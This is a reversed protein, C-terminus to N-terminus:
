SLGRHKRFWKKIQSRALSTKVFELWKRSPKKSKEVIIEVIDGNKLIDSLSVMKGNVKVGACKQGIETHVAYAFDVPTAGEPLDIVDGQPTFVFIRNKFFDFKLGKLFEEVDSVEKQWDRLQRVWAFKKRQTKLDIKEKHAWHACIGYEAEEHMEPTRIQFETIKGNICFVTTHLSRYGTPKPTAIYDKIRGLLPKWYKHIVGLTKYCTEVDKVIMRLAVLDYIKEFNMEYRLLKQYLSWYHKARQHIDIPYIKEKELLKILTPRVKKLYKKGKEYREKVNEMLWKFEEPYLYPFALDELQGKMEGIGLRHAIPAFIELTELAIRKQKEKPLYDLTKMNDWRDALKILIVRLDQAMAFFMKRLNEARLDIPTKVRREIPEVELGKKPYRLKGLKSVGGVLFAIEKGFNKELEKLSVPTDDPVDHLLGAAVAKPDLKLETLIQAVHLPHSIYDKGSLRKQGRHADAAFEFARRILDPDSSKEIIQQLLNQNSM